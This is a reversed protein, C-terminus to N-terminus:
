YIARAPVSIQLKRALEQFLNLERKNKTHTVLTRIYHEVERRKVPNKMMNRLIKSGADHVRQAYKRSAKPMAADDLLSLDFAMLITLRYEPANLLYDMVPQLRAEDERRLRNERAAESEKVNQFAVTGPLDGGRLLLLMIQEQAEKHKPIVSPNSWTELAMLAFRFKSYDQPQEVIQRLATKLEPIKKCHDMAACAFEIEYQKRLMLQYCPLLEPKVLKTATITDFLANLIEPEQDDTAYHNMLAFAEPTGIKEMVQFYYSASDEEGTYANLERQLYPLAEKGYLPLQHLATAATTNFLDNVALAETLIEVPSFGDKFKLATQLRLLFSLNGAAFCYFSENQGVYLTYRKLNSDLKRWQFGYQDYFLQEMGQRSIPEFLGLAKDLRFKESTVPILIIDAVEPIALRQRIEPTNEKLPLDKLPSGSLIFRYATFPIKGLAPQNVTLQSVHTIKYYPYGMKLLMNKTDALAKTHDEANLTGTLLLFPLIFFLIRKRMMNM